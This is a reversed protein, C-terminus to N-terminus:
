RVEGRSAPGAGIPAERARDAGGLELQKASPRSDIEELWAPAKRRAWGRSVIGNKWMARLVEPDGFAFRMHGVVVLFLFVALWDHVLTAGTRWSLPFPHYWRLILGTGLMVVVAGAYFSANLKQGANFKGIKLQSRVQNRRQRESFGVRLWAGDDPLWRNLRALDLRFGRGWYGLASVVIPIPLAIGCYVHIDQVLLRRGILRTVPEYYLALGTFGLVFILIANLLHATREVRDFRRVPRRDEAARRRRALAREEASQRGQQGAGGVTPKPTVGPKAAAGPKPGAAPKHAGAASSSRPTAEDM